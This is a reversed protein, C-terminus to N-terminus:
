RDAAPCWRQSVHHGVAGPGHRRRGIEVTPLALRRATCTIGSNKDTKKTRKLQEILMTILLSSNRAGRRRRHHRRAASQPIADGINHCDTVHGHTLPRRSKVYVATLRLWVTTFLCRRSQHYGYKPIAQTKARWTLWRKGALYRAENM